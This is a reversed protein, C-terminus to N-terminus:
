LETEACEPTVSEMRKNQIKDDINFLKSHAVLYAKRENLLIMQDPPPPEGPYVIIGLKIDAHGNFQHRSDVVDLKGQRIKGAVLSALTVLIKPPNQTLKEMEKAKQHCFEFGIWSFRMVSVEDTGPSPHFAQPKLKGNKIHFPSFIGRVIEESDEIEIPWPQM